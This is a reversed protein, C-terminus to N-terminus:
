SISCSAFLIAFNKLLKGLMGGIKCLAAQWAMFCDIQEGHMWRGTDIQPIQYRAVGRVLAVEFFWFVFLATPPCPSMALQEITETITKLRFGKPRDRQGQGGDYYQENIM